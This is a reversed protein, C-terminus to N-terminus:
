WWFTLSWHSQTEGKGGLVTWIEWYRKTFEHLFLYYWSFTRGFLKTQVTISQIEDVSEFTIRDHYPQPTFFNFYNLFSIERLYSRGQLALTGKKVCQLFLSFIKRSSKPERAAFLSRQILRRFVVLALEIYLLARAHVLTMQRSFAM